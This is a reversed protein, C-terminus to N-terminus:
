VVCSFYLVLFKLKMPIIYGYTLHRTTIRAEFNSLSIDLGDVYLSISTSKHSTAQSSMFIFPKLVRCVSFHRDTVYKVRFPDRAELEILFLNWSILYVRFEPMQPNYTFLRHTSAQSLCTTWKNGVFLVYWNNTCVTKLLHYKSHNSNSIIPTRM